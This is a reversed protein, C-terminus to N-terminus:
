AFTGRHIMPANRSAATTATTVALRGTGGGGGAGGRLGVGLFTQILFGFSSPFLRSEADLDTRSLISLASRLIAAVLLRVPVMSITSSSATISRSSYSPQGSLSWAKRIGAHELCSAISRPPMPASTAGPKRLVPFTPDMVSASLIPLPLPTPRM